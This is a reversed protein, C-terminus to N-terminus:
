VPPIEPTSLLVPLCARESGAASAAFLRGSPSFRYTIAASISKVPLTREIVLLFLHVGISFFFSFAVVNFYLDFSNSACFCGLLPTLLSSSIAAHSARKM